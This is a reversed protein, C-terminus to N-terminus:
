VMYRAKLHGLFYSSNLTEGTASQLLDDYGMFRGQSWVNESLWNFIPQLAWDGVGDAAGPIQKIMSQYLQAANMAGLTYSPFYGVAGSPWHIDQMPGDKYNGRTDLGLYTEMAENWREPIDSVQARGLTIDRELEYRLIVHMPYTVEDANVRILGPKVQTYLAHLNDADFAPDNGLHKRLLPALAEIFPRSRGLQMEFFLSQSEHVGMGMARGVPQSLWDKPRGMEYRAHGTEHIVGMLGEIVNNVDYRTTIRADEPVGGSFPHATQDLRGANFDFGLKGMLERALADQKEIPFPGIPLKPAPRSNQRELINQLLAPLTAKLEDFVPDIRAMSSGPDYLDILADYDNAYGRETALAANLAQASERALDFVTQLLPEFDAWNNAPRLTRWAHECENSAIAQAEVLEKPIALAQKWQVTMERLNARQWETLNTENSAAAFADALAPDQLIESGMVSLEAMAKGRAANGGPPMMVAQDWGLMAQAHELQALRHFTKELSAYSM